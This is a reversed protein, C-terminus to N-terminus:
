GSCQLTHELGVFGLGGRFFFPPPLFFNRTPFIPGWPSHHSSPPPSGEQFKEWVRVEREVVTFLSFRGMTFCSLRGMVWKGMLEPIRAAM